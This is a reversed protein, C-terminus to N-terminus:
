ECEKSWADEFKILNHSWKIWQAGVVPFLVRYRYGIKYTPQIKVIIGPKNSGIIRPHKAYVLDGVKM